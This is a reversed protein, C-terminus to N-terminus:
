RVGEQFDVYCWGYIEDFCDMMVSDEGEFLGPTTHNMDEQWDAGYWYRNFVHLFEHGLVNGPWVCSRLWEAVDEDSIKIYISSETISSVVCGKDSSSCFYGIEDGSVFDLSVNNDALLGEVDFEGFVEAYLPYVTDLVGQVMSLDVSHGNTNVCLGAIVQECTKEKPAADESVGSTAVGCSCCLLCLIVRM